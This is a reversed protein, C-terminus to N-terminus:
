TGKPCDDPEELGPTSCKNGEPCKVCDSEQDSGTSPMFTGIKCKKCSTQGNEDQYKGKECPICKTAGL